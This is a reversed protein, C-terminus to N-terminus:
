PQRETAGPVKHSPIIAGHIGADRSIDDSVDSLIPHSRERVGALPTIGICGWFLRLLMDVIGHVVIAMVRQVGHITQRQFDTGTLTPHPM